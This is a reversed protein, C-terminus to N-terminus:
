LPVSQRDRGAAPFSSNAYCIQPSHMRCDTLRRQVYGNALLMRITRAGGSKIGSDGFNVSLLGDSTPYCTNLFFYGTEELLAIDPPLSDPFTNLCALRYLLYESLAYNAYNVSEYFAGDDDFDDLLFTVTRRAM